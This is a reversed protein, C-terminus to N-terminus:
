DEDCGDSVDGEEGVNVEDSPEGEEEMSGQPGEPTAKPRHLEEGPVGLGLLEPAGDLLPKERAEDDM